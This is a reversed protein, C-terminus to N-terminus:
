VHCLFTPCVRSIVGSYGKWPNETKLPSRPMTKVKCLQLKLTIEQANLLQIWGTMKIQKLTSFTAPFITYNFAPKNM